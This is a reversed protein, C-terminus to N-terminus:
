AEDILEDTATAALNGKRRQLKLFATRQSVDLSTIPVKNVLVKINSAEATQVFGGLTVAPTNVAFGAALLICFAKLGTKM